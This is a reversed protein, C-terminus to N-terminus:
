LSQIALAFAQDKQEIGAGKPLMASVEEIKAQVVAFFEAYKALVEKSDLGISM